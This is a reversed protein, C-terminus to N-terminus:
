WRYPIAPDDCPLREEDTNAFNFALSNLHLLSAAEAGLAKFGHWVGIPIQVLLPNSESLRIEQLQNRTPSDERSDYLVLLLEGKLLAIQDTQQQHRYWAKVVGPLTNTVYIQGFGPYHPDDNRQVELLFGRENIVKKLPLLYVQHINEASQEDKM